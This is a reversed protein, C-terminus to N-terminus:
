LRVWKNTRKKKGLAKVAQWLHSNVPTVVAQQSGLRHIYGNIYDIETQQNNNIDCRMSSSNARTAKAVEHVTSSLQSLSLSLGQTAAVAVIEQLIDHSIQTFRPQNIDGNPCDHLATLPNIVCNIALKLWQKEVIDKHFYVKTLANNFVQRLWTTKETTLSGSLLGIDTQGLGTHKIQLSDNSKNIRLCGHTTLMALIAHNKLLTKPLEEATGMGNHCLLLLADKNILHSIQGIAQKVQYSKVTLLIIDAQQINIDHAYFLQDNHQQNNIDTFTFNVSDTIIKHSPRLQINSNNTQQKKLHHYWLLGIAGQGIIVIKM